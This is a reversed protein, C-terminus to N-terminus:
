KIDPSMEWTCNDSQHYYWYLCALAVTCESFMLIMKNWMQHMTYHMNCFFIVNSLQKKEQSCINQSNQPNPSPVRFMQHPFVVSQPATCLIHCMTWVHLKQPSSFVFLLQLLGCVPIIDWIWMLQGCYLSDNCDFVPYANINNETWMIMHPNCKLAGGGMPLLVNNSDVFHLVELLTHKNMFSELFSLYWLSQNRHPLKQNGSSGKYYFTTIFIRTKPQPLLPAPRPFKFM